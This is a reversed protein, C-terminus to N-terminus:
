NEQTTKNEKKKIYYEKAQEKIREKNKEYYTKQYDSRNDKHNDYYKKQYRRQNAQHKDINNARYKYVAKKVSDSYYQKAEDNQIETDTM